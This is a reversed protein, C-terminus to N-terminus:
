ASTVVSEIALKIAFISDVAATFNIRIRNLPAQTAFIEVLLDADQAYLEIFHFDDAFMQTFHSGETFMASAFKTEDGRRRRLESRKTRSSNFCGGRRCGFM